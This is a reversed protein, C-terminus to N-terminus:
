SEEDQEAQEEQLTEQWAMIVSETDEATLLFKIWDDLLAIDENDEIMTLMITPIDDFKHKLLNLATEQKALVKGEERGEVRDEVFGEERGKQERKELATSVISVRNVLEPFEVFTREMLILTEDSYEFAISMNIELLKKIHHINYYRDVWRVLDVM